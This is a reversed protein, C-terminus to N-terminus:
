FKAKLILLAFIQFVTFKSIFIKSISLDMEFANRSPLEYLEAPVSKRVFFRM